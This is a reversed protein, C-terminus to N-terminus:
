FGLRKGSVVWFGQAMTGREGGNVLGRKKKQKDQKKGTSIHKHLHM